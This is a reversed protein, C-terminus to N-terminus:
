KVKSLKKYYMNGTSPKTQYNLANDSLPPPVSPTRTPSQDFATTQHNATATPARLFRPPPTTVRPMTGEKSYDLFPM